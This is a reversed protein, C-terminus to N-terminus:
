DAMVDTPRGLQQHRHQTRFGWSPEPWVPDGAPYKCTEEATARQSDLERAEDGIAKAAAKAAGIDEGNRAAQGIAKSAANAEARKSEAAAKLERVATDQALLDDVVIDEGRASWAAAFRQPNARLATLDIM